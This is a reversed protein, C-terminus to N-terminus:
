VHARGIQKGTVITYLKLVINKYKFKPISIEANKAEATIPIIAKYQDLFYLIGLGTYVKAAVADKPNPITKLTGFCVKFYQAIPPAITYLKLVINKCKFKPISIDVNKAEATIPIIAKYQDLFYLIGLGTYVTADIIGIKRPSDHSPFLDSLM